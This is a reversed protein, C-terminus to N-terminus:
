GTNRRKRKRKKSVAQRSTDGVKQILAFLIDRRLVDAKVAQVLVQDGVRFTRKSRKGVLRSGPEDVLYFDDTMSSLPILGNIFYPILDVRIGGRTIEAIIGPFEEGVREKMFRTKKVAIIEREADLALRERISSHAAIEGLREASYPPSAGGALLEKLIRHVVLDPYRRIPSTFHTYKESALGFHGLADPCYRAQKMARLTTRYILAEEPRGEAQQLVRTIDGPKWNSGGKKLHLGFFGLFRGLEKMKESDPKEHARHIAPVGSRLLFEAVAENTAIMFEEIIQHAVTREAKVINEVRGQLDLVIEPEPLDFDLSGRERRRERMKLALREMMRLSPALEKLRPSRPARRTSLVDWVQAYTLRAASKILSPFIDFHDREGEKSFIMKVTLTLRNVSPRLSCLHDSLAPPLMSVVEGPFYVSTGRRLAEKDTASGPPVFHGVDAISVLLRTRGRSLKTVSVADDFDKAEVGDITVTPVDRLDVRGKRERPTIRRPLKRSEALVEQSFDEALQFKRTMVAADIDPDDADGLVEIIKGRAVNFQDPDDSIRAVVMQGPRVGKRRRGQIYIDFSIRKGDPIVRGAGPGEVLLGVVDRSARELVEVVRGSRRRDTIEAGRDRGRGRERRGGNRIQKRVQMVEAVVRDGDMLGRAEPPSIFLDKERGEDPIIFGFGGAHAQFRGTVRGTREVGQVLRGPLKAIRGEGALEKIARQFARMQGKQIGFHDALDRSTLPRGRMDDRLYAVIAEPAIDINEKTNEKITM